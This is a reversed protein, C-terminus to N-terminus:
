PRVSGGLDRCASGIADDLTARRSQAVALMAGLLARAAAEPNEGIGTHDAITDPAEGITARWVSAESPDVNHHEGQANPSASVREFTLWACCGVGRLTLYLAECATILDLSM